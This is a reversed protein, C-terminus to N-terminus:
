YYMKDTTLVGHSSLITEVVGLLYLATNINGNKYLEEMRLTMFHGHMLTFEGNRLHNLESKPMRQPMICSSKFYDKYRDLCREFDDRDFQEM